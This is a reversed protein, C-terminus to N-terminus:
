HSASPYGGVNKPATPERTYSQRLHTEECWMGEDGKENIRYVSKCAFSRVLPIVDDLEKERVNDHGELDAGKKKDETPRSRM